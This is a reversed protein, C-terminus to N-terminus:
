AAATMPDLFAAGLARTTRWVTQCRRNVSGNESFFLIFADPILKIHEGLICVGQDSIDELLYELLLGDDRRVWGPCSVFKQSAEVRDQKFMERVGLSHITADVTDYDYQLGM